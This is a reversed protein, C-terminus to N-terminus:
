SIYESYYIKLFGLFLYVMYPHLWSIQWFHLIVSFNYLCYSNVALISFYFKANLLTGHEYHFTPFSFCRFSLFKYILFSGFSMSLLFPLTLLPFWWILLFSLISLNLLILFSSLVLSQLLFRMKYWFQGKKFINRFMRLISLLPVWSLQVM